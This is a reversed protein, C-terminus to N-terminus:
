VPSRGCVSAVLCIIAGVVSDIVLWCHKKDGINEVSRWWQLCISTKVVSRRRSWSRHLSGNRFLTGCRAPCRRGRLRCRSRNKWRSVRGRRPPILRHRCRNKTILCSRWASHTHTTETNYTAAHKDTHRHPKTSSSRDGCYLRFCTNLKHVM